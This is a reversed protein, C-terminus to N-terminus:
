TAETTDLEAVRRVTARWARRDMPNELLSYRFTHGHGERSNNGVSCCNGVGWMRGRGMEEKKASLVWIKSLPGMAMPKLSTLVSTSGLPFDHNVSALSPTGM